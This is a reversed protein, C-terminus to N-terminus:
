NFIRRPELLHENLRGQVIGLTQNTLRLSEEKTGSGMIARIADITEPIVIAEQHVAMFMYVDGDEVTVSDEWITGEYIDGRSRGLERGVDFVNMTSVIGTRSDVMLTRGTQLLVEMVQSRTVTPDKLSIILSHFHAHTMPMRASMVFVNLGPIIEGVDHGHHAPVQAPSPDLVAGDVPGQHPDDPDTAKRAIVVRAKAVGFQRHLESLVRTMGTTNCSVVRASPANVVMDYNAQANFSFPAVDAKEGGQFLQKVGAAEYRPKNRAALKPPACEVIVDVNGLLDDLTGIAPYGAAQLQLVSDNSDGYLAYGHYVIFGTKYDPRVKSIGVVEMDPQLAVADAVRRGITGYGNIGVRIRAM